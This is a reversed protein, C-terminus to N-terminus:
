PDCPLFLSGCPPPAPERRWLSGPAGGQLHSGSAALPRGGERGQCRREMWVALGLGRRCAAGGRAHTEPGSPTARSCGSAGRPISPSCSRKEPVAVQGSGDGRPPECASGVSGQARGAEARSGAAGVAGAGQLAPDRDDPAPAWRGAQGRWGVGAGGVGRGAAAAPGVSAEGQAGVPAGWSGAEAEQPSKGELRPGELRPVTARFCGAPGPGCRRWLGDSTERRQSVPMRMRVQGPAGLECASWM